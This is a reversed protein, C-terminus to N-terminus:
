EFLLNNIGREKIALMTAERIEHPTADWAKSQLWRVQWSRVTRAEEWNLKGTYFKVQDPTFCEEPILPNQYISNEM